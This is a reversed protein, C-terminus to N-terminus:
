ATMADIGLQEAAAQLRRDRTWLLGESSLLASAILHADVFGLGSGYLRKAEILTMVEFDDAVPATPVAALDGLVAARDKLSGLAIEGFVFPHMMVADNDLLQQMVVDGKHLHDIWISTDVLIM